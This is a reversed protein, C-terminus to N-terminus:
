GSLRTTGHHGTANQHVALAGPLTEIGCEDCRARVRTMRRIAASINARHAPTLKRGKM